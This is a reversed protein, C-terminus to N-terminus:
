TEPLRRSQITGGVRLCYVYTLALEVDNVEVLPEVEVM